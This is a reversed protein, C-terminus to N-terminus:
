KHIRFGVEYGFWASDHFDTHWRGQVFLQVRRSVAFRTGLGLSCDGRTRHGQGGPKTTVFVGLGVTYFFQTRKGERAITGQEYVSVASLNVKANDDTARAGFGGFEGLFGFSVSEDGWGIGGSVVPWPKASDSFEEAPVGVGGGLSFESPAAKAPLAQVTMLLLSFVLGFGLCRRMTEEGEKGEKSQGDAIM